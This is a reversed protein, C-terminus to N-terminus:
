FLLIPLICYDRVLVFAVFDMIIEILMCRGTAMTVIDNADAYRIDVDAYINGSFIMLCLLM